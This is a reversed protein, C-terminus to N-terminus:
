SYFYALRCDIDNWKLGLAICSSEIKSFKEKNCVCKCNNEDFQQFLNCFLKQPCSCGCDFEDLVFNKNIIKCDQDTQFPCKCECQTENKVFILTENFIIDNLGVTIVGAKYYL